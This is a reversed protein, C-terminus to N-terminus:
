DWGTALRFCAFNCIVRKEERDDKASLINNVAVMPHSSGSSSMIHRATWSAIAETKECRASCDLERQQRYFGRNSNQKKWPCQLVDHGTTNNNHSHVGMFYCGCVCVAGKTRGTVTHDEDRPNPPSPHCPIPESQQHIIEMPISRRM